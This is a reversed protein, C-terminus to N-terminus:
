GRSSRWSFRSIMRSTWKSQPSLVLQYGGVPPEHGSEKKEERSRSTSHGGDYSLARSSRPFVVLPRHSRRLVVENNGDNRRRYRGGLCDLHEEFTAGDDDRGHNGPRVLRPKWEVDTDTKSESVIPIPINM